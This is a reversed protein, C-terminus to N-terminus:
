YSYRDVIQGGGDKLLLTDHVRNWLAHTSNIYSWWENKWFDVKSVFDRVCGAYNLHDAVYGTCFWDTAIPTNLTQTTRCRPARELFTRCRPEFNEIAEKWPMPCEEPLKPSFKFDQNLYGSCINLRFTSDGRPSSQSFLRVLSGTPLVFVGDTAPVETYITNHLPVVYYREGRRNTLTWGTLDIPMGSTNRLRVEEQGFLGPANVSELRIRQYLQSLDLTFTMSPPNPDLRALSDKARVSFTYPGGLAPLTVQRFDQRGMDVWTKDLPDLKTEFTVTRPEGFSAAGVYRFILDRRTVVREPGSTIYTEPGAGNGGSARRSESATIIEGEPIKRFVAYPVAVIDEPRYGLARLVETSPTLRRKGGQLLYVQKRSLRNRLVTGEPYASSKNIAPGDPLKKIEVETLRFIGADQYGLAVFDEQSVPRKRGGDMVYVRSGTGQVLTGDKVQPKALAPLVFFGGLVVVCMMVCSVHGIVSPRM